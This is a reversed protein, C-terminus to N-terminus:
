QHILYVEPIIMARNTFCRNLADVFFFDQQHFGWKQNKLVEETPFYTALDCEEYAATRFIYASLDIFSQKLGTVLHQNIRNTRDRSGRKHGSVFDYAIINYKNQRIYVDLREFISRTFLNDGNTVMVWDCSYPQQLLHPQNRLYPRYKPNVYNDMLHQTLVYGYDTRNQEGKYKLMDFKSLDPVVFSIDKNPQLKMKDMLNTIFSKSDRYTEEDSDAIIANVQVNKGNSNAAAASDVLNYMLTQLSSAQKPYTRIVLCINTVRKGTAPTREYTIVRLLRMSLAWLTFFICLCIIRVYPFKNKRLKKFNSM